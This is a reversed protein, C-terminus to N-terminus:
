GRRLLTGEDGVAFAVPEQGPPAPAFAVGRLTRSTPTEEYHWLLGAADARVAHGDAGVALALNADHVAVDLLPALFPLPHAAWSTGGDVSRYLTGAGLAGWGTAWGSLGQLAISTMPGPLDSQVLCWSAGDDATRALVGRGNWTSGVVIAGDPTVAVDALHGEHNGLPLPAAVAWSAGDASRFANPTFISDQGVLWARGPSAALGQQFMM